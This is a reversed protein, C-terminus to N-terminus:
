SNVEKIFIKIWYMLTLLEYPKPLYLDAGADLILEKDHLVSTVIIKTNEFRKDSKLNKCIDLGLM